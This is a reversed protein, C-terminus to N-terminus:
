ASIAVPSVIKRTDGLIPHKSVYELAAQRDAEDCIDSTSESRHRPPYRSTLVLLQPPIVGVGSLRMVKLCGTAM